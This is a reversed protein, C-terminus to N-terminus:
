ANMATGAASLALTEIRQFDLVLLAAQWSVVALVAAALLPGVAMALSAARHGVVLSAVGGPHRRLRVTAGGASTARNSWGKM